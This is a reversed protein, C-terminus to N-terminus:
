KTKSWSPGSNMGAGSLQRLNNGTIDITWIIGDTTAFAIWKSDPSWSLPHTQLNKGVTPRFVEYKEKFDPSIIYIGQTSMDTEVYAIWKGDPSWAPATAGKMITISSGIESASLTTKDLPLVAMGVPNVGNFLVAVIQNNPGLSPMVVGIETKDYDKRYVNIKSGMTDTWAVQYNPLEANVRNASLDQTFIIKSGDNTWQPHRAGMETTVHFWFNTNQAKASDLYGIFIDYVRHTGGLNDPGRLDVKGQRAFAIRKGDPAWSPSGNINEATVVKLQNSGDWNMVWLDGNSVYAIKGLPAGITGAKEPPLKAAYGQSALSLSLVIFGLTLSLAIFKKM